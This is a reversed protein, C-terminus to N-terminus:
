ETKALLRRIEAIRSEIENRGRAADIQQNVRVAHAGSFADGGQSGGGSQAVVDIREKQIGDWRHLLHELEAELSSRDPPTAEGLEAALARLQKQRQRLQFREEFADDPLSGLRDMIVGMESLVQDLDM